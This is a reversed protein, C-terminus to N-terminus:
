LFKKLTEVAHENFWCIKKNSDMRNYISIGLGDKKIVLDGCTVSGDVMFGEHNVLSEGSTKNQYDAQMLAYRVNKYLRKMNLLIAGGDWCSVFCMGSPNVRLIKGKAVLGGTAYYVEEGIDYVLNTSNRLHSFGTKREAEAAREEIEKEMRPWEHMSIDKTKKSEM